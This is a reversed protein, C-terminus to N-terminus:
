ALTRTRLTIATSVYTKLGEGTKEEATGGGAM